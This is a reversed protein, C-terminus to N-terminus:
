RKTLFCGFRGAGSRFRSRMGCYLITALRPLTDRNEHMSAGANM